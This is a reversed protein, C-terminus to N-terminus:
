PDHRLTPRERGDLVSRAEEIDAHIRAVLADIGDFRQEDRLRAVFSLALTTGYLDRDADLLHAEVSVDVGDFTPRTGVNVVAPAPPEDVPTGDTAAVVRARVAYVGGAPVLMGDDVAVNATPVGITRGRGEGHVVEGELEFPRGLADAAGAVDGAAVAERIRTSSVVDAEDSLLPVGDVTFGLGAGLEALTDVDGAARHGFRFNAGVVVHVAALRGALVREAFEAPTLRSLAEDFELVVVEDAGAAELAAVRARLPQLLPPALEPRVVSLPHRDFTLAVTRVGREAAAGAARALIARHGVHVGDFVGIAVVCPGTV